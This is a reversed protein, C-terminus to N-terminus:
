LLCFRHDSLADRKTSGLVLRSNAHAATGHCWRHKYQMREGRLWFRAKSCFAPCRHKFMLEAVYQRSLLERLKQLVGFRNPGKFVEREFHPFDQWCVLRFDCADRPSSQRQRSLSQHESITFWFVRLNDGPWTPNIPHTTLITLQDDPEFFPLTTFLTWRSRLTNLTRRTTPAPATQSWKM